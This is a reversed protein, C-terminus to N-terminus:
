RADRFGYFLLAEFEDNPAFAFIATSLRSNGNTEYGLKQRFAFTDGEEGSSAARNAPIPRVM